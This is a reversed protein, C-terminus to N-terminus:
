QEEVRREGHLSVHTAGNGVAADFIAKAVEGARSAPVVCSTGFPGFEVSFGLARVADAARTVHPGPQGEVFPEITFELLVM